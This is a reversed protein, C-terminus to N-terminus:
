KKCEKRALATIHKIFETKQETYEERDNRYKEALRLKLQGYEYATEHHRRLYDRFYLEDWDGAYRVHIHYTQGTFGEESYGKMFMLHPPPNESKYQCHYELKKLKNIILENDLCRGVELLIDITPKAKLGPVATSGIHEIRIIDQKKFIKRIRAEELGFLESWRTDPESILIPFLKGLEEKSMDNLRKKM